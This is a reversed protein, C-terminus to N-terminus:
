FLYGMGIWLEVLILSISFKSSFGPLSKYSLLSNVFEDYHLLKWSGSSLFRLALLYRSLDVSWKGLASTLQRLHKCHQNAWRTYHRM